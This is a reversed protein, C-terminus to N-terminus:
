SVQLILKKDSKSGCFCAFGNRKSTDVGNRQIYDELQSRLFDKQNEDMLKTDGKRNNKSTSRKPKEEIYNTINVNQITVSDAKITLKETHITTHEELKQPNPNYSGTKRITPLVESTIWRKFEKATKLKSALVLSYFGSENILNVKQIGGNTLLPYGATVDEKEINDKVAKRPNKYGLATVIETGIMYIQGDIEIFRCEGFKEHEFIKLENM